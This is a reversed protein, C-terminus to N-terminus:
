VNQKALRAAIQHYLSNNERRIAKNQKFIRVTEASVAAIQEYTKELNERIADLDIERNDRNIFSEERDLSNYWNQLAASEDTSLTEGMTARHHFQQMKETETM